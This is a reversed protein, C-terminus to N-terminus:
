DTFPWDENEKEKEKEIEIETKKQEWKEKDADQEAKIIEQRKAEEKKLDVAEIEDKKLRVMWGRGCKPCRFKKTRALPKKTTTKKTESDLKPIGAPIPSTKLEFLDGIDSGDTIRKWNCIECYLQYLKISM